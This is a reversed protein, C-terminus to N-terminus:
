LAFPFRRDHRLRAEVERSLFTVLCFNGNIAYNFGYGTGAIQQNLQGIIQLDLWNDRHVPRLEHLRGQWRYSLAIPGHRSEWSEVVAEPRFRGDTIRAWAALTSAYIDNGKFIDIEPNGVWVRSEDYRLLLVEDWRMNERPERRWDARFAALIEDPPHQAFFGLSRYYEIVAAPGSAVEPAGGFQTAPWSM